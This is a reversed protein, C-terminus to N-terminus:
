AAGRELLSQKLSKLCRARTPGISGVPMGLRDAIQAYSPHDPSFYLALLLRRCPENILSLGHNLWESLEWQEIPEEPDKGILVANEALDERKGPSERRNRELLRWTHRRTVTALWPGLRSDDPLKELSQILITFVVQSVDAADERSLGYKLAVSFVLRGYKDMLSEWAGADGERCARILDSDSLGITREDGTRVAIERYGRGRGRLQVGSPALM